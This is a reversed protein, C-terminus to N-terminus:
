ARSLMEEVTDCATGVGDEARVLGRISEARSKYAPRTLLAKLHAAARAGSYAGRSQVRAIGLRQARYANDPQDHVHPVILMPVGASMAHGTTGIGGQHVVAAARAFLTKYPAWSCAFVSPAGSPVRNREDDGTLLVARCGCHEAAAKSEIYFNGAERVVNSGLTFVIPAEGALLFTELEDALPHDDIEACFPFGTLRTNGPWDKQPAALTRSFLGLTGWPSFMGEFFPHKLSASLGAKARLQDMPEMWNRTLRRFARFILSHPFSGMRPVHALWPLSPLVPPDTASFLTAPALALSLWPLALKEAVLPACFAAPHSIFLDANQCAALLDAYTEEVYRLLNKVAFASGTKLQATRRSEEPDATVISRDPRVPFFALGYGEVTGRLSQGAAITVQHGRAMLGLGVALSPQISGSSGFAALVIRSM